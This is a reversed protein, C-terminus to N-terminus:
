AVRPRAPLLVAAIALVILAVAAFDQWHVAEGLGLAGSFVGLVPILMVSVSSAVPPLQRALVLWVVQAFAFVGVANYAIPLATHLAPWRWRPAELLVAGLGVCVGTIVTMWFAVTMTSLPLTSRRLRHTGYAWVAAAVLVASAALPAGALRTFEHVLLLAAGGGAAAVGLLHRGSLRDRFILAGWLAAFVPMTYGLIAARGSSLRPLAVILLVHWVVMNPVALRLLEARHERPVALPVRMLRLALALLPLGLWISLARFTLPPFPEPADPWGSVGVKMVPWNLGWVLTLAVLLVLQRRSFNM